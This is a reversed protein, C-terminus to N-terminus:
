VAYRVIVVGSGGNGGYGYSTNASGGAGGGGGTNVTGAGGGPTIASNVGVSGAGGGGTGGAGATPTGGSNVNASGGGGGGRAVSSGSISSSIGAGGAGAKGAGGTGSAVGVAGAGGGGSGATFDSASGGAYGQGSTGSGPSQGAANGPAGGGSGGSTTASNQNGGHGGGTSTISGFVSNSGNSAHPGGSENAIGGLGGAGILVSYSSGNLLSLATEASAGGGSTGVSTRYGGAGGGGMGLGGVNSCAGGGGGAVVLFDATLAQLATFTGSTNFTHYWYTGDTTVVGGMAKQSGARIGYLHFTCGASFTGSGNYGITISNIPETSTGLGGRWISSYIGLYAGTNGTKSLIHKYNSSNSYNNINIVSTFTNADIDGVMAYGAGQSAGSAASGSGLLRNSTYNSATDGNCVLTMNSTTANSHSANVVIVLDTYSQDIGSFTVTTASSTLVVSQLPRNTAM